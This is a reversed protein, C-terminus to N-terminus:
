IEHTTILGKLGPHAVKKASNQLRIVRWAISSSLQEFERRIWCTKYDFPFFFKEHQTQAKRPSRWLYPHKQTIKAMKAQGQAGDWHAM